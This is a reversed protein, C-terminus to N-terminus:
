GDMEGLQMQLHDWLSSNLFARLQTNRCSEYSSTVNNEGRVKNNESREPFDSLIFRRFATISWDDM